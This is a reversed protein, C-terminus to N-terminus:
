RLSQVCIGLTSVFPERADHLERLIGKFNKSFYKTQFIFESYIMIKISTQVWRIPTIEESVDTVM